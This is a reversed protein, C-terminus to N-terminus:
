AIPTPVSDPDICSVDVFGYEPGSDCALFMAPIRTLKSQGTRNLEMVAMVRCIGSVVVNNDVTIPELVGRIKISEMLAENLPVSRFTALRILPEVTKDVLPVQEGTVTLAFLAGVAKLVTRRNVKAV